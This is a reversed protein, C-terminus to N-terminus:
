AVWLYSVGEGDIAADIYLRGVDDVALDLADGPALIRGNSSDVTVDGVFINDTNAPLAAISIAKAAQTTLRVRTGATAVTAQESGVSTSAFPTIIDIRLQDAAVGGLANRLDDILQLATVMTDQKAATAAGAPLPLSSVALLLEDSANRRLTRYTVGDIELEKGQADPVLLVVKEM